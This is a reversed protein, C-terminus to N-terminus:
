SGASGSLGTMERGALGFCKGVSRIRRCFFEWSCPFVQCMETTTKKSKLKGDKGKTKMRLFM